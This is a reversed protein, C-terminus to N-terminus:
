LNIFIKKILKQKGIFDLKSMCNNNDIIGFFCYLYDPPSYSGIHYYNEYEYGQYFIEYNYYIKYSYSSSKLKYSWVFILRFIM